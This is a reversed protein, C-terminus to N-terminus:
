LRAFFCVVRPSLKEIVGEKEIAMDNEIIFLVLAKIGISFIISFLASKHPLILVL